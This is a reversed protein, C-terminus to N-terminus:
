RSEREAEAHALLEHAFAKIADRDGGDITTVACMSLRTERDARNGPARRWVELEAASEVETLADGLWHMLRGIGNPEIGGYRGRRTGCRPGWTYAYAVSGVADALDRIDQLEDITASALDLMAVLNPAPAPEEAPAPMPKSPEATPEEQDLVASSAAVMYRTHALSLLKGWGEFAEQAADLAQLMIAPTDADREGGKRIFDVLEPKSMRLTRDAIHMGIAHHHFQKMWGNPDRTPTDFTYAAFDLTAMEELTAAPGGDSTEIDGPLNVIERLVM